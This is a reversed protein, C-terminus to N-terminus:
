GNVVRITRNIFVERGADGSDTRRTGGQRATVGDEESRGGSDRWTEYSASVDSGRKAETQACDGNDKDEGACAGQADPCRGKDVGATEDEEVNEKGQVLTTLSDGVMM